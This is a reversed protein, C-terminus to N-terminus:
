KFISKLKDQLKQQLQQKHNNLESKLGAKALEVLDPRVTPSTLTGGVNLPIDALLHGGAGSSAAGKLISAKLRYDIADTALNLTGQGTVNLNQSAIQLDHTTAVGNSLDASAKFASFATRGTDKGAPMSSRQALAVARNMEFGLDLGQVSGNALNATVQGSLSRVVADSTLGHGTLHTTINGQGSIRNMKAFDELLPAVNVASLTQNLTLAPTSGRADLTVDGSYTGGYLQATAPAIHMVNDKCDIRVRVQSMQIRDVTASGITATGSLELGKLASTPLQTPTQDPPAALAPTSAPSLYSDLDIHDLALDFTMAHTTLDTVAASGRLTSEDLQVDLNQARAANGGYTFEGSAAIRTLAKPDRTAPVSMAMQSMWQRLVLPDLRFAGTLSPADLIRTGQLSGTLHAAGLQAGFGLARVTQASLDLDLSPVTFAWPVATAGPKALWTGELTVHDLRYRNPADASLGGIDASVGDLVMNQYSVRSRKVVVGVISGTVEGTAGASSSSPAPAASANAATESQWNGQGAANKMLHLDLGDVEIRGISLQKKLLPLLKVRVSVHQLSAFPESGFGPPNGVTAPGLELAIWPFVALKIPGNFVLERGTASKVEQEIRGKYDNPNVFLWVGLLLVIVLAVLCGLVTGSIKLARM